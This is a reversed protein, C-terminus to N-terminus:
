NEIPEITAKLGIKSLMKLMEQARSRSSFIGAQMATKGRWSIAFADPAVSKVLERDKPANVAAIVRYRTERPM